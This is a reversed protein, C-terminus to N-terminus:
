PQSSAVCRARGEGARHQEGHFVRFRSWRAAPEASNPQIAVFPSIPLHTLRGLQHSAIAIFNSATRYGRAARKAQQMMGTIAGVFGNSRHDRMGRMVADFHPGLTAGLRKFSDLRSRRGWSLWRQLDANARAPDHYSRASGYVTRQGM